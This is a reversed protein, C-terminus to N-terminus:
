TKSIKIECCSRPRSPRPCSVASRRSRLKWHESKAILTQKRYETNSMKISLGDARRACLITGYEAHFTLAGGYGIAMVVYTM